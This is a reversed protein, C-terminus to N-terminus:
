ERLLENIEKLTLDKGEKLKDRLSKKAELKAKKENEEQTHDEIKVSFNNPKFYQTIENGEIDQIIREVISGDQSESWVGKYVKQREIWKVLKKEADEQSEADISLEGHKPNNPKIKVIFHDAFINFSLLLLLLYRM